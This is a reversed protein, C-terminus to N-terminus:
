QKEKVKFKEALKQKLEESSCHKGEKYEKSAIELLEVLAKAEKQKTNDTNEM